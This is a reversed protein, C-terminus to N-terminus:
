EIAEAEVNRKNEQFIHAEGGEATKSKEPFDWSM